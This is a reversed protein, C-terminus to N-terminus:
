KNAAKRKKPAGGGGKAPPGRKGGGGGGADGDGEGKGKKRHANVNEEQYQYSADLDGGVVADLKAMVDTKTSADLSVFEDTISLSLPVHSAFFIHHSCTSRHM